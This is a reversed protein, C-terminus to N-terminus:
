FDLNHPSIYIKFLAVEGVDRIEQEWGCAKGGIGM